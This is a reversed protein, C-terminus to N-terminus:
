DRQRRVREIIRRLDSEFPFKPVIKLALVIEEVLVDVGDRSLHIGDPAFFGDQIKWGTLTGRTDYTPNWFRKTINRVTQIRSRTSAATTKMTYIMREWMDAYRHYKPSPIPTLITLYCDPVEGCSQILSQIHHKMQEMADFAGEVKGADISERLNNDGLAIVHVQSEGNRHNKKVDQRFAHCFVNDLKQGGRANITIGAYRQIQYEQDSKYWAHQLHTQFNNRWEGFHSSGHLYVKIPKTSM